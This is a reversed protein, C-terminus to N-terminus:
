KPRSEYMSVGPTEDKYIGDIELEMPIPFASGLVVATGPAFSPLRSVQDATIAPVNRKIYDLDIANQIRHIIFAGTQSLVVKSLESPIQSIITLHVGFKRGERAIQNFISDDTLDNQRIYRHAEDFILYVPEKDYYKAQRNREFLTRAVYNSFLKLGDSDPMGSVDFIICGATERNLISSVTNSSSNSLINASYKEKLNYLQTVLGESYSRAQKNGRVEEEAFVFDLSREIDDMSIEDAEKLFKDKDDLVKNIDPRGADMYADTLYHRFCKQLTDQLGDPLNGYYLNYLDFLKKFSGPKEVVKNNRPLNLVFERQLGKEAFPYRIDNGLLDIYKSILIRRSAHGDANTDELAQYALGAYLKKMGAENLFSYRITRELLPKQIRQSPNLISSWDDISLEGPCLHYEGKQYYTIKEPDKKAYKEAIKKYDGHLDFVVFLAKKKVCHDRDPDVLEQMLGNLLLRMTTSKGSGTNGLVAAHGGFLDDLGLSPRINRYGALQGVSHKVDCDFLVALESEDCAYIDSGVMPIDVVGPSYGASSIAGLPIASFVYSDLFRNSAEHGYPKEYEEIAIVKFIVKVATNLYAFLYQNLSNIHRFKGWLLRDTIDSAVARFRIKRQDVYIITGIRWESLKNRNSDIM